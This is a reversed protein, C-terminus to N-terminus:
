SYYVKVQYYIKSSKNEYALILQEFKKDIDNLISSNFYFPFFYDLGYFIPIENAKLFIWFINKEYKNRIIFISLFEVNLSNLKKKNEIFVKSEFISWKEYFNEVYNKGLILSNM